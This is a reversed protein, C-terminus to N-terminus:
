YSLNGREKAPELSSAPIWLSAAERVLAPFPFVYSLCSDDGVSVFATLGSKSSVEDEM